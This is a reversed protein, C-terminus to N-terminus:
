LGKLAVVVSPPSEEDEHHRHTVKTLLLKDDFTCMYAFQERDGSLITELLEGEANLVFIESRKRDARKMPESLYLRDRASCLELWTIWNNRQTCSSPVPFSRILQGRFSYVKITYPQLNDGRFAIYLENAHVTLAAADPDLAFDFRSELSIADFSYVRGDGLAWVAADGLALSSLMERSPMRKWANLRTDNTSTLPLSRISNYDYLRLDYGDHGDTSVYLGADGAVMADVKEEVGFTAQKRYDSGIIHLMGVHGDETEIENSVALRGDTLTTLCGPEGPAECLWAFEPLEIWRLVRRTRVAWARAWERCVRAAAGDKRPDLCLLFQPLLDRHMLVDVIWPPTPQRAAILRDAERRALEDAVCGRAALVVLEAHSLCTLREAFRGLNPPMKAAACRRRTTTRTVTTRTVTVTTAAAAADSRTM